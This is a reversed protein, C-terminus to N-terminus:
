RAYLQGLRALKPNPPWIPRLNNSQGVMLVGGQRGPQMFPSPWRILTAATHTNAPQTPTHQKVMM